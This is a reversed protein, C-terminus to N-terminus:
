RPPTTDRPSREEVITTNQSGAAVTDARRGPYPVWSMAIALGLLALVAGVIVGTIQLWGFVETEGIGLPNALASIVAGVAGVLFIVIGLPREDMM